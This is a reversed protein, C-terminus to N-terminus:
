AISWNSISNLIAAADNCLSSAVSRGQETVNISRPYSIVQEGTRMQFLTKYMKMQNLSKQALLYSTQLVCAEAVIDPITYTYDATIVDTYANPTAFTISGDTTDITYGSTQVVGNKYIVAPIPPLQNPQSALAQTYTSAWFGNVAFYQTNQGGNLLTEGFVPLYYGVECDMEVIPKLLGLQVIVPSLAYTIAQLPVIEVYAGDNNIVCDGSNINAFFGAGATSINSIQIRYRTVNRVPIDYTPFFTRRNREHFEHQIMVNHPEFGGKKTDFGMHADIAAEARSITMALALDNTGELDIGDQYRKYQAPTLYKPM